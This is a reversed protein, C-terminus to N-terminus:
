FYINGYDMAFNITPGVGMAILFPKLFVLILVIFVIIMIVTLLLIHVSANDAEKKNNAGIYKSIIVTAGSGFWKFYWFCHHIISRCIRYSSFSCRRIWSGM